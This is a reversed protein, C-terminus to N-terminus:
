RIQSSGSPHNSGHVESHCNMCGRALMFRNNPIDDIDDSTYGVGPHGSASHCQQCLLPPRKTLSAPHNSGHPQHCLSCNETVPAHEWLVPGRKEAHCSYCTDNVNDEVLLLDNNGDHVNHCDSCTMNGFRLPHGSSKYTDARVRQHCQFCVEQQKLPDFVPDRDAHVQHCSVCGVDANEHASGFWGMNEHSTHCNLCAQNQESVSANDGEGFTRMVQVESKKKAKRHEQSPGHCSECQLNSFPADADVLSGHKTNFISMTSWKSTKHCRLCDDAGKSTYEQAELVGPLMSLMMLVGFIKALAIHRMNM